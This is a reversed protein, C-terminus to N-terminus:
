ERINKWFFALYIIRCHVIVRERLGERNRVNSRTGNTHGKIEM